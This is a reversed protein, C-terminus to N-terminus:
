LSIAERIAEYDMNRELAYTGSNIVLDESEFSSIFDAKNEIVGYSLLLDALQDLSVGSPINVTITQNLDETNSEQVISVNKEHHEINILQNMSYYIVFAALGAVLISFIIDTFNYFFDKIKNM